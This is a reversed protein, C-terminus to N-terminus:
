LFAQNILRNQTYTIKSCCALAEACLWLSRYFPLLYQLQRESTLSGAAICMRNQECPWGALARWQLQDPQVTSRKANRVLLLVGISLLDILLLTLSSSFDRCVDAVRALFV